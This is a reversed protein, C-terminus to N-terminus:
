DLYYATILKIKDKETKRFIVKLKRGTQSIRAIANLANKHYRDKKPKKCNIIVYEIMYNEIDKRFQKKIKWHM